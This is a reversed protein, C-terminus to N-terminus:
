YSVKATLKRSPCPDGQPVPVCPPIIIDVPVGDITVDPSGGQASSWTRDALLRQQAWVLAAEAAYRTRTRDANFRGQKAQSTAVLLIAYAAITTLLAAMIVMALALGRKGTVTTM